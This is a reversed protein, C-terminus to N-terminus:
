VWYGDNEMGGGRLGLCDSIYTRDRYIQKYNKIFSKFLGSFVGKKEELNNVM